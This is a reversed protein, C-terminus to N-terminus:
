IKLYLSVSPITLLIQHILYHDDGADAATQALCKGSGQEPCAEVYHARYSSLLRYFLELMM